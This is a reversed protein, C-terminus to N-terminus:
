GSKVFYAYTFNSYLPAMIWAIAVGIFGLGFVKSFLLAAPIRVIYQAQLGNTLTFLSNGSGKVFGITPHVMAYLIYMVCTIHLYRSAVDIVAPDQNFLGALRDAFLIICLTIVANIMLAMRRASKMSLLAREENKAGLNQSTFAAVADNLANCPLIAFSDLKVGIGYATSYVLGYTNVIGNLTLHSIHLSAQQLASPLGIALLEKLSEKHWRWARPHFSLIHKKIRFYSIGLIFSLAQSIVTAMAAGKVGLQLDRIFFIDLLVNTGTAILVFLLSSRSDGFGRQFACILNYGLTFTMGTFIISLYDVAMQYAEPPTSILTLIAPTLLLGLVSVVLACVAYVSIASGACNLIRDQDNRGAHSGIAISVGTSLGAITMFLVNMVPGSVSVACLGETGLYRGVFYMDVANYLAQLFNSLLLPLSFRLIHSDVNGQTLDNQLAM